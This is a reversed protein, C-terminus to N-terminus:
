FIAMLLSPIMYAVSAWLCYMYLTLIFISMFGHSEISFGSIHRYMYSLMKVSTDSLLSPISTEMITSFAIPLWINLVHQTWMKMGCLFLFQTSGILYSVQALVSTKGHMHGLNLARPVSYSSVTGNRSGLSCVSKRAFVQVYIDM